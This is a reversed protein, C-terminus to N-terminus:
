GPSLVYVKGELPQFTDTPRDMERPEPLHRRLKMGKLIPGTFEVEAKRRLYNLAVVYTESGIRFSRCRVQASLPKVEPSEVVTGDTVLPTLKAGEALAKLFPDHRRPDKAVYGYTWFTMAGAGEVVSQYIYNLAEPGNPHLSEKRYAGFGGGLERWDFSQPVAWVNRTGRAAEVVKRLYFGFDAPWFYPLPYHDMMHCDTAAMYDPYFRHGMSGVYVIMQPHYPDKRRGAEYVKRVFDPSQGNLDPEDYMYWSLLKAYADGVLTDRVKQAPQTDDLAWSELGHGSIRMLHDKGADGGVVTNVGLAALRAEDAKGAGYIGYPFFPKGEVELVCSRHYLIKVSTPFPAEKRLTVATAYAVRGDKVCSVALVHEGRALGGIPVKAFAVDDGSVEPQLQQDGIKVQVSAPRLSRDAYRLRLVAETETTYYNKDPLVEVRRDHLLPIFFRRLLAGDAPDTISVVVRGAGEDAAVYTLPIRLGDGAVSVNTFRQTEISGKHDIIDVLVNVHGASEPLEAVGVVLENRGFHLGNVTPSCQVNFVEGRRRPYLFANGILEIPVVPGASLVLLGRGAQKALLYVGGQDDRALPTYSDAFSTFYAGAPPVKEAYIPGALLGDGENALWAQKRGAARAGVCAFDAGCSAIWAGDKADGANLCILVGGNRLFRGLAQAGAKMGESSSAGSGPLVVVVDCTPLASVWSEARSADFRHLPLQFAKAAREILSSFIGSFGQGHVLGVRPTFRNYYPMNLSVARGSREGALGKRIAAAFAAASGNPPYVHYFDAVRRWLSDTATLLFGVDQRVLEALSNQIEDPLWYDLPLRVLPAPNLGAERWDQRLLPYLRAVDTHEYEALVSPVGNGGPATARLVGQHLWADFYGNVGLIMEPCIARAAQVVAKMEAEVRESLFSYYDTGSPSTRVWNIRAPPAMAMLQANGGQRAKVFAQWFVDGFDFGADYELGTLTAQYDFLGGALGHAKALEAVRCVRPLVVKAWYNSDGPSVCPSVGAGTEVGLAFSGKAGTYDSPGFLRITILCRLNQQRAVKGWRSVANVFNPDDLDGQRRFPIVLTNIGSKSFTEALSAPADSDLEIARFPLVNAFTGDITILVLVPALWMPLRAM